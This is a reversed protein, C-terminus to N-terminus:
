MRLDDIMVNLTTLAGIEELSVLYIDQFHRRKIETECWLFGPCLSLIIKRERSEHFSKLMSFVKVALMPNSDNINM